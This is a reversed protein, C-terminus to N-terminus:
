IFSVLVGALVGTVVSVSVIGSIVVKPKYFSLLYDRTEESLSNEQGVIEACEDVIKVTLPYGNLCALGIAFIDVFPMKMPKALVVGAVACGIVGFALLAILTPLIGAFDKLNITVLDMLIIAFMTADIFGGSGVKNLSDGDILGLQAAIFGILLDWVFMSIGTIEGIYYGGICCLALVAFVYYFNNALFEPVKILKKSNDVLLLEGTGAVSFNNFSEDGLRKVMAKKLAYGCAPYGVLVQGTMLIAIIAAIKQEGTEKLQALFILGAQTGGAVEVSGYLATVKDLVTFGAIAGLAVIFVVAAIAIVCTKWEGKFSKFPISGGFCTIAFPVGFGYAVNVFLTNNFTETTILGFQGGVIILIIMAFVYGTVKYSVLKSLIEGVIFVACIMLIAVYTSM